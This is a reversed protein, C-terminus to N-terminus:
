AIVEEPNAANIDKIIIDLADICQMVMMECTDADSTAAIDLKEVVVTLRKALDKSM